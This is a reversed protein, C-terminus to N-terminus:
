KSSIWGKLGFAGNRTKSNVSSYQINSKAHGRLLTSSLGKYSSDINKLSGKWKIKFVSRSATFRRTLRGKAELRVGAMSKYMLTNLIFNMLSDNSIYKGNNNKKNIYSSGEFLDLLLKNLIDKNYYKSDLLDINLGNIKNVWLEKINIKNYQERIKNINPLKVMSLSSRLIRLLKNNRNKLKLSIVETFIDSNLALTKLNIINFEVEKNYLKAILPKLKLIFKSEFKSKNLNLLLKYYAIIDIERELQTKSLFNKYLNNYYNHIDINNECINIINVLKILDKNLNKIILEKEELLKTKKVTLLNNKELVIQELLYCKLEYLWDIFSISDEQNKIIDLKEKISLLKNKNNVMTATYSPFLIVELRKLKNILIRREENYIYLTIIVKSNTHKLEAKSIFIKNVALRRFRTAMRKSKLLATNFYFNFYSKILKILNKDAINLNKITNSNFAYISNYWEKTASPFHRILGSTNIAVNLPIVKFKNNIKNFFILPKNNELRKNNNYNNNM